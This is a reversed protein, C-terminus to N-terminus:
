SGKPCHASFECLSAKGLTLVLFVLVSNAFTTCTICPWSFSSFFSVRFRRSFLLDRLSVMNVRVVIGCQLRDYSHEGLPREVFQQGKRPRHTLQRKKKKNKKKKAACTM